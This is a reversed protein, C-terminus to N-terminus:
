SRAHVPQVYRGRMRMFPAEIGFYALTSLLLTLPVLLVLTNLAAAALPSWGWWARADLLLGHDKLAVLVMFHVLYTSFSLEGLARLVKCLVGPLRRSAALYTVVFLASVAGEVTPWLAKWWAQVPYGGLRNLTLTTGLLVALGVLGSWGPLRDLKRAHWHRALAMGFIFADIRGPLHWYNMDRVSNTLLFGFLRLVIVFALLVWLPRTGERNMIRNFFPFILYFQLEIAVTWFATSIPWLNLGAISNGLITVSSLVGVLNVREPFVAMGFWILTLYLPFVRLVRNRMFAGYRIEKGIGALSFVFGSLVFFLAVVIHTEILLSMFPDWTRWWHDNDLGPPDWLRHFTWLGHHLVVMLSAFARIHDVGEIYQINKSRVPRRRGAPAPGDEQM